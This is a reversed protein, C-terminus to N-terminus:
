GRSETLQDMILKNAPKIINGLRLLAKRAIKAPRSENIFLREIMNTGVYLPKCVMQHKRNYARLVIQSGIDGGTQMAKIIEQALTHGGRLGLNYGHATVPHMGVAADGLLAFRQGIFSSAYTCLLPYSHLEGVIEMRGVRHEFREEIDRAFAGDDLALLDEAEDSPLTIVISVRGDNLPLVALTREYHFCEFATDHHPESHSMVGVICTRGLDNMATHIGMRRRSQSMRGDAAVLLKATLVQGDDLTVRTGYNDTEFDSVRREVMIEIDDAERVAEYSGQRIYQNALMYGLTEEGAEEHDFKLAYPEDGNIVHARKIMSIHKPDIHDLVGLDTLLRKSLHTLAIERGDYPPDALVAEPQPEIVALSLGSGSLSKAFGLGAPGGGIVIIDYNQEQTKM